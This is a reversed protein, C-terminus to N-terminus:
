QLGFEARAEDIAMPELEARPKDPNQRQLKSLLTEVRRNFLAPVNDLSLDPRELANPSIDIGNKLMYSRRMYARRTTEMFEELKTQFQSPGDDTNPIFGKLRVEEAANVAAGSLQKIITSLTQNTQARLANYRRATEKLEPDVDQGLKELTNAGWTKFQTEYQLLEPEFLDEIRQLSGMTDQFSVMEKEIGTTTSSSLPAGDMAIEVSGDANVRTRTGRPPPSVGDYPRVTGDQMFRGLRANGSEDVYDRITGADQKPEPIEFGSGQAILRLANDDGSQDLMQQVGAMVEPDQAIYKSVLPSAFYQGLADRRAEPPAQLASVAAGGILQMQLARLQEKSAADAAQERGAMDKLTIQNQFNQQKVERDRADMGVAFNALDMPNAM